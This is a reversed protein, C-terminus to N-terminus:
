VKEVEKAGPYLPIPKGHLVCDCVTLFKRAVKHWTYHERILAAGREGMQRRQSQSMRLVEELARGIDEKTPPVWRGADVTHLQEWPTGTTTIVPTGCALAEAVVIGFNESYSPLVFVDARRLLAVKKQGQVMGPLLIHSGVGYRDIMAEVTKRYGRDDPGAIVLFADRYRRSKVIDAWLPVLMDLGKEGSLRSMFVVVQRGKLDPWCVEAETGEGDCLNTIDVGNPIVSVPGHYGVQRFHEAEQDSDAQLCAANAMMSKAVFKLYVTKKFCRFRGNKLRWPELAGAPRLMYPVGNGHAIRAAAYTPHLWFGNIHMLDISPMAEVLGHVLGKSRRWRRPWNLDYLYSNDLRELERRDEANGTAWYSVDVHRGSLAAGLGRVATVPGGFRDALYPLVFGINMHSSVGEM